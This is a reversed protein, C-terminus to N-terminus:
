GEEIELFGLLSGRFGERCVGCGVSNIEIAYNAVGLDSLILSIMWVLEADVMPEAVGFVEVDMQYFQRFRGKQPREHRFMPGMTFLKSTREKAYLSGQLYARVM